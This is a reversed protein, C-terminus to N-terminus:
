AVQLVIKGFHESREMMEHARRAEALPLVTHVVPKLQRAFYFRAAELLEAKSGMYSGLLSLQKAFLHRLETAGAPGTTAGCTVLRGRHALSLISREWTAQGVHEVVVDAGKRATLRKVEAVVDQAHHDIVADAGLTKAQELKAASGATAIVRAGHLKAIQIAATGVGSGAAWVLVDDGIGVRARTVLMRWATLFVLPFAAAEEFPVHGPLAILNPLPVRVLEAYGGWIQYGLIRYNRCSNDEGSLCQACRGCSTGPSVMVREGPAIGEVPTRLSVVEGAIDNGLIHPLPIHRGAEGKRTWIDLHNLACARVRVLAEGPAAMPDQIEAYELVEPGGHARMVVAKM